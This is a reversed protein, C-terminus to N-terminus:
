NELKFFIPNHTVDPIQFTTYGGATDKTVTGSTIPDFDASGTSITFRYRSIVDYNSYADDIKFGRSTGTPITM